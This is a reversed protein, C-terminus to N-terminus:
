KKFNFFFYSKRFYITINRIMKILRYRVFHDLHLAFKFVKSLFIKFYQFLTKISVFIKEHIRILYKQLKYAGEGRGGGMATTFSKM